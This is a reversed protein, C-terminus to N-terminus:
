GWLPNACALTYCGTASPQLSLSLGGGQPLSLCPEPLIEAKSVVGRLGVIM